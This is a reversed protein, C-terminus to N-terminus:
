FGGNRLRPPPAHPSFRKAMDQPIPPPRAHSGTKMGAQRPIPPAGERATKLDEQLKKKVNKPTRKHILKGNKLKIPPAFWQSAGSVDNHYFSDGTKAVHIFEWEFVRDDRVESGDDLRPTKKVKEGTLRHKYGIKKGNVDYDIEWDMLKHLAVLDINKAELKQREMIAIQLEDDIEYKTKREVPHQFDGDICCFCFIRVFKEERDVADHEHQVKDEADRLASDVIERSLRAAASKGSETKALRTKLVKTELMCEKIAHGFKACLSVCCMCLAASAATIIAILQVEGLAANTPKFGVENGNTIVQGVTASDIGTAGEVRYTMSIVDTKTYDSSDSHTYVLNTLAFNLASLIGTLRVTKCGNRCDTSMQFQKGNTLDICDFTCPRVEEFIEGNVRDFRLEAFRINTNENSGPGDSQLDLTLEIIENDGDPSMISMNGLDFLVASPVTLTDYTILSTIPDDIERFWVVTGPFNNATILPSEGDNVILQYRLKEPCGGTYEDEEGCNGLTINNMDNMTFTACMPGECPIVRNGTGSALEGRGEVCKSRFYGVGTNTVSCQPYQALNNLNAIPEVIITDSIGICNIAQAGPACDSPYPTSTIEEGAHYVRSNLPLELIKFRKPRGSCIGPTPSVGDCRSDTGVLTFSANTDENVKVEASVTGVPSAGVALVNTVTVDVENTASTAISDLIQFTIVDKGVEFAATTPPSSSAYYCVIFEPREGVVITPSILHPFSTIPTSTCESSTYDYELLTGFVGGFPSSADRDFDTIRAQQPFFGTPEVFGLETSCDNTGGCDVDSYLLTIPATAGEAVSGTTLEAVPQDNVPNIRVSMTEVKSCATNEDCIQYDFDDNAAPSFLHATTQEYKLTTGTAPLTLTAINVDDLLLTGKTPLNGSPIRWKMDAPSLTPRLNFDEDYYFGVSSSNKSLTKMTDEELDVVTFDRAVPASNAISEDYLDEIQAASLETNYVAVMSIEGLFSRVSVVSPASSLTAPSTGIYLPYTPDFIFTFSGTVAIATFTLMVGDLQMDMSGASNNITVVLQHLQGQVLTAAVNPSLAFGSGASNGCYSVTLLADAISLRFGFKACALWGFSGTALDAAPVQEGFEALVFEDGTSASGGTYTGGSMSFDPKFWVELTFSNSSDRYGTATTVSIAGELPGSAGRLGSLRLGNMSSSYTFPGDTAVTETPCQFTQTGSIPGLYSDDEDVALGGVSAGAVVNPIVVPDPAECDSNGFVYLAKLSPAATSDRVTKFSTPGVTPVLAATSWDVLRLVQICLLLARMNGSALM